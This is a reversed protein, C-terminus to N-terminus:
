EPSVGSRLLCHNVSIGRGVRDSCYCRLAESAEQPRPHSAPWWIIKSSTLLSGSSLAFLLPSLLAPTPGGDALFSSPQPRPTRPPGPDRPELPAPTIPPHTRNGLSISHPENRHEWFCPLSAQKLM